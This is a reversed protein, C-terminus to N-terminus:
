RMRAWVVYGLCTVHELRVGAASTDGMEAVGFRGRLTSAVAEYGARSLGRRQM